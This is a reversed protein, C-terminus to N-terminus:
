RGAGKRSVPPKTEAHTRLFPALFDRMQLRARFLRTKVLPISIGLVSATEAVNLGQIDRLILIERFAPSLSALGKSIQERVEQRELVESPVEKWNGMLLPVYAGEDGEVSISVHEWRRSRLRMRAENMVIRLLWTSFRAEGRFGSLGRLAKLIAEQAVDEADAENQLIAYGVVYARREYPQILQYFYEPQGSLVLKILEEESGADASHLSEQLGKRM